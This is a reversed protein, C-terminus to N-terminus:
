PTAVATHDLLLSRSGKPSTRVADWDVPLLLLDDVDCARYVPLQQGRWRGPRVEAPEVWGAAVVHRWDSIRVGLRRCCQATYLLTEEAARRATRAAAADLAAPTLADLDRVDFLPWGAYEGCPALEGIEVLARIDAGTVGDRWGRLYGAARNSGVPPSHPLVDRVDAAVGSALLTEAALVSWREYRGRTEDPSYLGERRAEDFEWRRLGLLVALTGPTHYGRAAADERAQEPGYTEPQEIPEGM